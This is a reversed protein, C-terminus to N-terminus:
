HYLLMEDIRILSLKNGLELGPVFRVLSFRKSSRFQWVSGNMTKCLRVKSVFRRMKYKEFVYKTSLPVSTQLVSGTKSPDSAEDSGGTTHLPPSPLKKVVFSHFCAKEDSCHSKEASGLRESISKM